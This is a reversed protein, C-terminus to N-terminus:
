INWSCPLWNWFLYIITVYNCWFLIRLLFAKNERYTLATTCLYSYIILRYSALFVATHLKNSISTINFIDRSEFFMKWKKWLFISRSPVNQSMHRQCMDRCIDHFTGVVRIKPFVSFETNINNHNILIHLKSNSPRVKLGKQKNKVTFSSMKIKRHM